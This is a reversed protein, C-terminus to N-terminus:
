PSRRGPAGRDEGRGGHEPEAEVPQEGGPLCRRGAPQSRHRGRGGGALRATGRRGHLRAPAPRGPDSTGLRAVRDDHKPRRRHRRAHRALRLLRSRRTSSRCDLSAERKAVAPRHGQGLDCWARPLRGLRPGLLRLGLGVRRGLPLSARPLEECGRRDVFGDAGRAEPVVRTRDFRARGADCRGTATRVEVVAPLLTGFSLRSTRSPLYRVARKSTVVRRSGANRIGHRTAPAPALRSVRAPELPTPQDPVAVKASGDRIALM